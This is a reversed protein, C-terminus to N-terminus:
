CYYYVGDKDTELDYVFDQMLETANMDFSDVAAYYDIFSGTIPNRLNIFAPTVMGGALM